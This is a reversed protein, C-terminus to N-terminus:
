QKIENLLYWRKKRRGRRKIKFLYKEIRTELRLSIYDGLGGGLIYFVGFYINEHINEILSAVVFLWIAGRILDTIACLFNYNKQAFKYYFIACTQEIIGLLFYIGYIANM